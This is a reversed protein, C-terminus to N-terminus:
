GGVVSVTTRVSLGWADLVQRTCLGMAYGTVLTDHQSETLFAIQATGGVCELV